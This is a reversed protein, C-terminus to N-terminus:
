KKPRYREPTNEGRVTVGTLSGLNKFTDHKLKQVADNWKTVQDATIRGSFTFTVVQHDYEGQESIYGGSM